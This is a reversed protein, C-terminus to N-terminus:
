FGQDRGRKWLYGEGEPLEPHPNEWRDGRRIRFVGRLGDKGEPRFTRRFELTHGDAGVTAGDSFPLTAGAPYHVRMNLRVGGDDQLTIAGDEMVKGDASHYVSLFVFRQEVPHWVITGEYEPKLGGNGDPMSGATRIFAHRPSGWTFSMTPRATDPGHPRFQAQWEGILWSLPEYAPNPAERSWVYARRPQWVGDQDIDFSQVHRQGGRMEDRHGIRLRTGDSGFFTQMAETAHEGTRTIAGEGLTGDTGFQSLWLTQKGPHWIMRFEWVTDLDSGGRIPFLRGVLSKEGAAWHWEMGYADAPENDSRYASNDAVWRGAQGKMEELAWERTATPKDIPEAATAAAVPVTMAVALTMAVAVTLILALFIAARALNSTQFKM